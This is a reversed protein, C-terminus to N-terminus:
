CMAPFILNLGPSFQCFVYMDLEMTADVWAYNLDRSTKKISEGGSEDDTDDYLNESSTTNLYEWWCLLGKRRGQEHFEAQTRVEEQLTTRQNRIEQYLDQAKNFLLSGTPQWDLAGSWLPSPISADRLIRCHKLVTALPTIDFDTLSGLETRNDQDRAKSNSQASAQPGSTSSSAAGSLNEAKQVTALGRTKSRTIRKGGEMAARLKLEFRSQFDM